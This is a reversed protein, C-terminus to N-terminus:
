ARARYACMQFEHVVDNNYFPGGLFLAQWCGKEM